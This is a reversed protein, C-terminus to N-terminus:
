NPHCKQLVKSALARKKFCVSKDNIAAVEYGKNNKKLNYMEKLTTAIDKDKEKGIFFQARDVRYKPLDTIQAVKDSNIPIKKNIWLLLGQM